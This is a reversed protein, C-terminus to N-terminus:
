LVYIDKKNEFESPIGYVKIEYRTTNDTPGKIVKTADKSITLLSVSVPDTLYIIELTWLDDKIKPFNKKRKRTNIM